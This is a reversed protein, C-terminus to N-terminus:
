ETDDCSRIIYASATQMGKRHTRSNDCPHLEHDGNSADSDISGEGIELLSSVPEEEPPSRGYKEIRRNSSKGITKRQERPPDECGPGHRRTSAPRRSFLRGSRVCAMCEVSMSEDEYDGWRQSADHGCEYCRDTAQAQAKDKLDTASATEDVKDIGRYQEVHANTSDGNQRWGIKGSARTCRRGKNRSPIARFRVVRDFRVLKSRGSDSEDPISEDWEVEVVMSEVSSITPATEARGGIIKGGLTELHRDLLERPVHKTLVDAPNKSGLVKHYALRGTVRCEQVWLGQTRLHRVKGIGARQSIGLAASSDTYVEGELKIGLDNGYAILALGEASAAVMAYLEAEASSLAVTRQQKSYTKIVHNGLMVIGGSTSRATKPCGAWDSDTYVTVMDVPHQWPFDIVM